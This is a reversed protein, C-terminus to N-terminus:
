NPPVDWFSTIPTVALSVRGESREPVHWGIPTHVAAPRPL